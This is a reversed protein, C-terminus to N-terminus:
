NIREGPTFRIPLSKMGRAEGVAYEPTFDDAVAFDPLRDLMARLVVDMMVRAFNRGLCIHAGNGFGLHARADRDILCRDPEAFRAPDRNAAGNLAVVKTGVALPKGELETPQRVTRRLAQIPSAFRVFEEIAGAMDIEGSKLRQKDEPHRALHLIAESLAAHTTDLGGFLAVLLVRFVEEDTLAHDGVKETVLVQVLDDQAPATRRTAALQMLYGGVEASRANYGDPDLTKYHAMYELLETLRARDEVPVGLVPLITSSLTPRTLQTAADATGEEIFQDILDRVIAEIRPRAIEAAESTFHPNLMKRFRTQEPPDIDVPLMMVPGQPIAAGEASSFYRYDSLIRKVGDYTVGFDFGGHQESHAVPCRSRVEAFLPYPDQMGEVDHHSFRAIHDDLDSMDFTGPAHTEEGIRM